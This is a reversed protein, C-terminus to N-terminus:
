ASNAEVFGRIRRWFEIPRHESHIAMERAKTTGAEESSQRRETLPALRIPHLKGDHDVVTNESTSTSLRIFGFIKQPDCCCRVAHWDSVEESM